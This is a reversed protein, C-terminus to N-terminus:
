QFELTHRIANRKKRRHSETMRSGAEIGRVLLHVFRLFFSFRFGGSSQWVLDSEADNDLSTSSFISNTEMTEEHSIPFRVFFDLVLAGFLVRRLRDVGAGFTAKKLM